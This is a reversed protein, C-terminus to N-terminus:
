LPHCVPEAGGALGEGADDVEPQSETAGSIAVEASLRTKLELHLM